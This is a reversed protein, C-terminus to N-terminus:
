PRLLYTAFSVDPRVVDNISVVAWGLVERHVV